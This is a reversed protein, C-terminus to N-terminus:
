NEDRKKSALFARLGVMLAAFLLGAVPWVVWSKDWSNNPLSIALFIATTICWYIAPVFGMKREFERNIEKKEETYEGQQLLKQFSGYIVSAWVFFWVGIAIMSLLVGVCVIVPFGEQGDMIGSVVLLPVIGLICCMVGVAICSTFTKEFDKKRKQVIGQVGYQLSIADKELYVFKGVRLSSIIMVGVAIAIILLLAGTCFGGVMNESLNIVGYEAAGAMVILPVPSFVCASVAPALWKAFHRSEDMYENAEEVSVNHIEQVEDDTESYTINELEDKLLYDTSVGFLTSMRIIKDLDPISAGSEWKSVSQRSIDLQDALEEQSWGCKKRLMMIKEALIM